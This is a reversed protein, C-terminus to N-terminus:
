KTLGYNRLKNYIENNWIFHNKLANWPSNGKAMFYNPLGNYDIYKFLYLRDGLYYYRMVEDYYDVVPKPLHKWEIEDINDYLVHGAKDLEM